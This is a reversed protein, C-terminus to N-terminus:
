LAPLNTAFVEVQIDFEEIKEGPSTDMGHVHPDFMDLFPINISM